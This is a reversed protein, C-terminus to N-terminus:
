DFTFLSEQIIRNARKGIFCFEFFYCVLANANAVYAPNKQKKEPIYQHSLQEIIAIDHIETESSNSKRLKCFHEQITYILENVSIEDDQNEMFQRVIEKKDWIVQLLKKVREQQEEPFNLQIKPLLNTQLSNSISDMNTSKKPVSSRIHEFIENIIGLDDTDQDIGNYDLGMHKNLYDVIKEMQNNDMYPLKECFDEHDIIHKTPEFTFANDVTKAFDARPFEPRGKFMLIYLEKYGDKLSKNKFGKISDHVKESDQESTVQVAIGRHKDGLDAGQYNPEKETNLAILEWGFFLNLLGCYFTEADKNIDFRQAKNYFSVTRELDRLCNIIIDKHDKIKYM